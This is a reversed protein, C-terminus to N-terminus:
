NKKYGGKREPLFAKKEHLDRDMWWISGHACGPKSKIEDLFREAEDVKERAEELARDAAEKANESAQKAKAASKRASEAEKAAHDATQRASVAEKTAADFPARAKEAKKFAAELTIKAKSLPLPDTALHQALEAKAKNQQVVGGENSKRKLEETKSDRTTEQSRVDALARDVEEQAAKFPAEATRAENERSVAIALTEKAENERAIAEKERAQSERFAASAEKAKEDSEIMAKSVEDLKVQAEAIEKANDGQSANVLVKFDSNYKFLLFHILPVVKPKASPSLAGTERLKGRLEQVTLTEKFSELFRHANMEDLGYGEARKELDLDQYKLVFKWLTESEKEAYTDWFANLFWVAQEKYPKLCLNELKEVDNKGPLVKAMTVL